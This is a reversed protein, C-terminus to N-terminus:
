EFPELLAARALIEPEIQGNKLSIERYVSQIFRRRGEKTAINRMLRNAQVRLVFIADNKVPGKYFGDSLSLFPSKGEIKAKNVPYFPTKPADQAASGFLDEKKFGPTIESNKTKKETKEKTIRKQAM